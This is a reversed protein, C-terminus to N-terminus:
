DNGKKEGPLLKGDPSVAVESQKGSKEIVAEYSTKGGEVIKETSIVKGGTAQETITKRAPAPIDALSIAEETGLVKGEPTIAVEITKGGKEIVFEFALVGDVDAKQVKKIEAASGYSQVAAMVVPPVQALPVAEDEDKGDKGEKGDKEADSAGAVKQGEAPTDILKGTVADISVELMKSDPTALDFSWLLKGGEEEIGGGKIVSRPNAALATKEAAARTVTARAELKATDSADSACGSAVVVLGLALVPISIRTFRRIM